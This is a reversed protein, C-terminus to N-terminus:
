CGGDGGGGGGCDGGGFDGPDDSSVWDAGYYHGQGGRGSQDRSLKPNTPRALRSSLEALGVVVVIVGVALWAVM